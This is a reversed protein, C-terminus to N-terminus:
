LILCRRRRGGIGYEGGREAVPADVRCCRLLELKEFSCQSCRSLVLGISAALAHGLLVVRTKLPLPLPPPPLLLAYYTPSLNTHTHTLTRTSLHDTTQGRVGLIAYEAHVELGVVLDLMDRHRQELLVVDLHRAPGDACEELFVDFDLRYVVLWMDVFHCMDSQEIPCQRAGFKQQHKARREHEARSGACKDGVCILLCVESACKYYPQM